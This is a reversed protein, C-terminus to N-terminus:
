SEYHPVLTLLLVMASQRYHSMIHYIDLLLNYSEPHPWELGGVMKWWKQHVVEIMSHLDCHLKRRHLKRLEGLHM